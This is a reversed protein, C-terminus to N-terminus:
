PMARVRCIACSSGAPLIFDTRGACRRPVRSLADRAVLLIIAAARPSRGRMGAFDFCRRSWTVALALEYYGHQREIWALGSTAVAASTGHCRRTERAVAIACNM